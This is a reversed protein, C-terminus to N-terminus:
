GKSIFLYGIDFLCSGRSSNWNACLWRSLGLTEKKRRLKRLRKVRIRRFLIWQSSEDSWWAIEHKRLKTLPTTDISTANLIYDLDNQNKCPGFVLVHNAMRLIRTDINNALQSGIILIVNFSRSQQILRHTGPHGGRNPWTALAEDFAAITNTRKIPHELAIGWPHNITEWEERNLLWPLPCKLVVRPYRGLESVKEINVYDPQSLWEDPDYKSDYVVVSKSEKLLWRLFTSKGTGPRGILIVSQGPKIEFLPQPWFFNSIRRTARQGIM